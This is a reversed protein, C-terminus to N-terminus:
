LSLLRELTKKKGRVSGALLSDADVFGLMFCEGDIDYFAVCPDGRENFASLQGYMADYVINKDFGNNALWAYEESWITLTLYIKYRRLLM